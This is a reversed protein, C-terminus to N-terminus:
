LKEELDSELKRILKAPNGAVVHFPPVSKTVVSGAGITCGRGITVGPLITVNGGIWCDDGIHIEKGLEPGSVGNRIAPDLPHTASYIYVNPGLLTRAGITVLCTDLCVFNFNIFSNSGVKLNTGYDVTLPAEVWPEENLLAEDQDPDELQPPLPTTDGLVNRWLEVKQRRTCGDPAKNFKACAVRARARKKVLDPTFAYYLEGRQMKRFNEELDIEM